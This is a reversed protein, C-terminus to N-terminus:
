DVQNIFLSNTTGSDIDGILSLIEQYSSTTRSSYLDALPSDPNLILGGKKYINGLLLNLAYIAIM